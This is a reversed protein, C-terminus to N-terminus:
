YNIKVSFVYSKTAPNNFYDLGRGNTPGTLNTEPDNGQFPTWLFLNRGTVSFEVSSLKTAKRFNDSNLSYGLTIERLRTWQASEIFQSGVPGFGSGLGTYWAEDLVVPGGGFDKVEGRITYSGDANPAYAVGFDSARGYGAVTTGSYTFLTSAQAATLTVEHDTDAHTGFNVMAGRTGGWIQGGHSHEFLVNLTFGKFSFMSGLGGRWDPNPNGIVNETNNAQPFGHEDLVLEGAANRQFDVGWLVGVPQGEVARSSTGTFGQLLLSSTGSLSKVNNRIRSWNAYVNWRFGGVQVVDGSLELEIGKNELTAVNDTKNTFGTSPALAVPLLVDKVTNTFYTAGLTVRDRLFRFDGGFEVETKVEPKLLSNGLTFSQEYGGGYASADVTTSFSELYITPNFYTATNYPLPQTAVKGYGVRLKGFSLFNSQIGLTKTFQWAVDSSPYFYTPSQGRGYTSASESRGTVNIFLQDRWGLNATAYLAGTRVQTFTNFPVRNSSTANNVNVPVDSTIIFSQTLAGVNDASRQNLNMGVLAGFNFADSLKWEGRAFLDGNFQTERPTQLQISGASNTSASNVPFFAQMRDSYHDVGVRATLTLWDTPMVDMQVSALFRDVASKDRNNNMVWVPNDYSPDSRRGIQNRYSRQRSAFALGTADYYTGQYYANNFDPASRVGGLLLGNLNSGQQIRNSTIHSYNFNSSLKIIDRFMKEASFKFSTRHYDSNAKVIGKQNMDGISIYFNGSKDGGSLSINHDWFHGKGFIADYQDYTDKSNKGGHVNTEDFGSEAVPYFKTGDPTQFYGIYGLSSETLVDDAGGKRTSIKDGFSYPNGSGEDPDTVNTYYYGSIGQGWTRQMPHKRLIEDTSYSGSYGVNIKGKESSGRKTTIMIVGNAARSGWLASASAGKLVEVSEVDNPNIDNLRSQQVVGGTDNNGPAMSMTTNYVPVGDVVILPQVSSTISSQGRIQIYSGAGPDGTSRNVYVGAAKGSLGNILTAEGSNKVASGTVKSTASGLRDKSVELGLATVVVETLQTVDPSMRVDVVTRSGVEVEQTQLGIFTFSLVGGEDPVVVSYAGDVDTSSGASTGKLIVNVGPLASGDDASTVHGTVTHQQSWATCVAAALVYLTLLVKKM